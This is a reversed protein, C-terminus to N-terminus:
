SLLLFIMKEFDFGLVAVFFVMALFSILIAPTFPIGEKILVMRRAKRLKAIDEISLGHVTKKIIGTRLKIDSVTWDGETLKGPEVLKIMCSDVAKLYIYLISIFFMLVAFILGSKFGLGFLCAFILLALALVGTYILIFKNKQWDSIFKKKFKSHNGFAIFLSYILSYVAGVLFLLAVFGAGAYVFDWWKEFPLVAGLGM